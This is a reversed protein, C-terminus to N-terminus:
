RELIRDLAVSLRDGAIAGSTTFVVCGSVTIFVFASFFIDHLFLVYSFALM